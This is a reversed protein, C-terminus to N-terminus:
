DNNAAEGSHTFADFGAISICINYPTETRKSIRVRNERGRFVHSLQLTIGCYRSLSGAYAPRNKGDTKYNYGHCCAETSIECISEKM